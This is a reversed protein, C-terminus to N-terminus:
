TTPTRVKRSFATIFAAYGNSGPRYGHSAAKERAQQMTDQPQYALEGARWAHEDRQQMKLQM